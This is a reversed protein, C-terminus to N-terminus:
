SSTTPSESLQELIPVDSRGGLVAGCHGCYKFEDPSRAGCKRCLFFGPDSQRAQFLDLDGYKRLRDDVTEASVGLGRGITYLIEREESTLKGDAIAVNLAFDSGSTREMEAFQEVIGALAAEHDQDPKRSMQMLMKVGGTAEPIGLAADISLLGDEIAKEEM